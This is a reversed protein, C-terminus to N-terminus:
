SVSAATRRRQVAKISGLNEQSVTGGNCRVVCVNAFGNELGVSLDDGAILRQHGTKLSLQGLLLNDSERRVDLGQLRLWHGGFTRSDRRGRPFFLCSGFVMM